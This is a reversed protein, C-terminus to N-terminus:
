EFNPRLYLFLRRGRRFNASKAVMGIRFPLPIGLSNLSVVFVVMAGM